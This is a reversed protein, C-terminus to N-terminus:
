DSLALKFVEEVDSRKILKLALQGTPIRVTLGHLLLYLLRRLQVRLDLKLSGRLRALSKLCLKYSDELRVSGHAKLVTVSLYTTTSQTISRM